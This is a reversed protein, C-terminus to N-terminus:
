RAMTITPAHAPQKPEEAEQSPAVHAVLTVVDWLPAALAAVDARPVKISSFPFSANVGALPGTPSRSM